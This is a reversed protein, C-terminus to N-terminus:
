RTVLSKVNEKKKKREVSSRRSIFHIIELLYYRKMKISQLHQILKIKRSSYLITQPISTLVFVITTQAENMSNYATSTEM